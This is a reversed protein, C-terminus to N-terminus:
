ATLQKQLRKLIRHTKVRANTENMGLIDGIEKFSRQEFFRMEILELDLGQLDQLAKVLQARRTEDPQDSEEAVLYTLHESRLNITRRVKNKRHMAQLENSAIRYLWASFPLGKFRYKKLNFLAKAFVLSTLEAAEEEQQVRQYLYRFIPLYYRNYLAEFDKSNKQAAAVLEQEELIQETTRHYKGQAVSM